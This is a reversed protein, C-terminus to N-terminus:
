GHLHLLELRFQLIFICVFPVWVYEREKWDENEHSKIKEEEEGNIEGPASVDNDEGNGLYSLRQMMESHEVVSYCVQIAAGFASEATRNNQFMTPINELLLELHQRCESLQVIVDTVMSPLVKLWNELCYSCKHGRLGRFGLSLPPYLLCLHLRQISLRPSSSFSKSSTLGKGQQLARKLNYFHITSDFTAIGVMTRSRGMWISSLRELYRLFQPDEVILGEICRLVTKKMHEIENILLNGKSHLLAELNFTGFLLNESIM